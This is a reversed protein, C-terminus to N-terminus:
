VGNDEAVCRVSSELGSIAAVRVYTDNNANDRRVISAKPPAEPEILLSHYRTKTM